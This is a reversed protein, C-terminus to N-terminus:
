PGGQEIGREIWGAALARAEPLNWITDVAPGYDGTSALSDAWLLRLAASEATRGSRELWTVADAFAGRRRAIEVARARDGALFWQRVVLGPALERAEALEAALRLRGHRELFAVAEENARLLEALVFAAEDIRGQASLREFAARYLKRLYSYLDASSVISGRSRVASPRISLSSRPTPLRFPIRLRAAAAGGGLPIAHRLGEQVD